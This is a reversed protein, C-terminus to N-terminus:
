SFIFYEASFDLAVNEIIEEIPAPDKDQKFDAYAQVSVVVDGNDDQFLVEENKIAKLLAKKQNNSVSIEQISM